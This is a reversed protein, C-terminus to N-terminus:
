FSIQIMLFCNICVMVYFLNSPLIFKFFPIPVWTHSWIPYPGIPRPRSLLNIRAMFKNKFIMNVMFFKSSVCWAFPFYTWGLIHVTCIAFDPLMHCFWPIHKSYPSFYFNSPKWTEPVTELRSFKLRLSFIAMEVPAVGFFFTM